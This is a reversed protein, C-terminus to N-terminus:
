KRRQPPPNSTARYQLASTPPIWPTISAEVLSSNGFNTINVFDGHYTRGRQEALIQQAMRVNEASVRGLTYRGNGNALDDVRKSIFTHAGEKQLDSPPLPAGDKTTKVEYGYWTGSLRGYKVKAIIDVGNNSTNKVDWPKDSLAGSVESFLGTMRLASETMIEGVAGKFEFNGDPLKNLLKGLKFRNVLTDSVVDVAKLEATLLKGLTLRVLKNEPGVNGLKKLEDLATKSELSNLAGSLISQGLEMPNLIGDRGAVSVAIALAQASSRVLHSATPDEAKNKYYQESTAVTENWDGTWKAHVERISKLYDAVERLKQRWIEDSQKFPRDETLQTTGLAATANDAYDRRRILALAQDVSDSLFEIPSFDNSAKPSPIDNAQEAWRQTDMAGAQMEGVISNAIANGFSDAAISSWDIRGHNYSAARILGGTVGSALSSAMQQGVSGLEASQAWGGALGGAFQAAPATVASVAVAKWSFSQMGLASGIGQTLANGLAARGATQLVAQGPTAAVTAATTGASTAAAGLGSTM